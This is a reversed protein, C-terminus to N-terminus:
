SRLEALSRVARAKGQKVEKEGRRIKTLVDKVEILHRRLNEYERRTVVILEEGHTLNKPITLTHVMFGEEENSTYCRSVWLTL